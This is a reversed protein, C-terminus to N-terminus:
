LATQAVDYFRRLERLEEPTVSWEADIGISHSLCFHKEIIEAGRAIAIKCADLGITHDSFGDFIKFTSKLPDPAELSVDFLRLKDPNTPYEPICYLPRVQKPQRSLYDYYGWLKNIHTVSVIVEKTTELIAQALPLNEGQSHALKYRKVRMEECWKVREIDFVSFFVEIGIKKGYEFLMFAQEKTLETKRYENYLKKSDYLQFKVLDAGGQKAERILPRALAMEGCHNQGCEAIITM